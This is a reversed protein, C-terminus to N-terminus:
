LDHYLGRAAGAREGCGMSLMAQHSEDAPQVRGPSLGQKVFEGRCAKLNVPGFAKVATSGYLSRLVAIALKIM